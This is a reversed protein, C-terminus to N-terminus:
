LITTFNERRFFPFLNIIFYSLSGICFLILIIGGLCTTYEEKYNYQFSFTVGFLDIKKLFGKIFKYFRKLIAM